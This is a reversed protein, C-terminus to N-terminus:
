RFVRRRDIFESRIAVGLILLSILLPFWDGFRAYFTTRHPYIPVSANVSAETFLPLDEIVQGLPNIVASYGGNTSRILTTRLEITRFSAIAFHQYEASDTKSWADNTLNILVDSGANHLRATQTPFADEFCIPATFHITKGEKNTVTFVTYETGPIWGKSFGVLADFFKGVIPNQAFPIYEAFPVLQMKGYWGLQTGDPAVYIVANAFDNNAANLVVPSGVLLPVGTTAMFPLFPDDKPHNAYYAKNNEYPWSLISESWVALDASKGSKAIAERTLRESVRLNRGLGGDVWPDGNQQVMVVNLTTYPKPPFSLKWAGFAVTLILIGAVCALPARMERASQGIFAAFRRPSGPAAITDVNASFREYAPNTLPLHAKRGLRVPTLRPFLTEALVAQPLAMLFSIGWVGTLEAVQILASLERSSMALTGWPYALFGTSKGWEWALWVGAFLFPRTQRSHQLAYRLLWGALVGLGFYALASAGLTFIAFDKFYALWFSSFVHVLFMMLGGLFGAHAWSRSDRFALYLPILSILGFLASGQKFLENPIGLSLLIASLIVSLISAPVTM